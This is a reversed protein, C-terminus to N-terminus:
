MVVLNAPVLGPASGDPIGTPHPAFSALAGDLPRRNGTTEMYVRYVFADNAILDEDDLIQGNDARVLYSHASFTPISPDALPDPAANGQVEVEYASVLQDGVQALSRRARAEDVQLASTSAVQLPQWGATDGTAAAETITVQPRAGGWHVDLAHSLADT